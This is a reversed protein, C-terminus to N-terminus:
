SDETEAVLWLHAKAFVIVLRRSRHFTSSRRSAEWSPRMEVFTTLTSTETIFNQLSQYKVSRTRSIHWFLPVYNTHTLGRWKHGTLLSPLFLESPPRDTPRDPLRVVLLLSACAPKATLHQVAPRNTSMRCNRSLCDEQIRATLWPINTHQPAYQRYNCILRTVKNKFNISSLPDAHPFSFKMKIEKIM